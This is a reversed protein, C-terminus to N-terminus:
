REELDFMFGGFGSGTNFLWCIKRGLFDVFLQLYYLSQWQTPSIIGETAVRIDSGAAMVLGEPSAYMVYAGM